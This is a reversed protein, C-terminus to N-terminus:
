KECACYGVGKITKIIQSSKKGLKQRLYRVHVDVTNSLEDISGGWVHALLTLRDIAEGQHRFLYALLEYERPSLSIEKKGVFVKRLNTDISVEGITITTPTYAHSQRRLLAKLRALLEIARYPKTLYDDAGQDLGLALDEEQSKATLMLIPLSILDRRVQQCIMLGSGDPLMWDVIAGDYDGSSIEVMAEEVTHVVDVLYHEHELLLSLNEAIVRDDEVILIRM